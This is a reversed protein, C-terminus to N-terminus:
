YGKLRRNKTFEASNNFLSKNPFKYDMSLLKIQDSLLHHLDKFESYRKTLKYTTEKNGIPDNDLINNVCSTYTVYIIYHTLVNGNSYIIDEYDNVVIMLKLNSKLSYKDQFYKYIM